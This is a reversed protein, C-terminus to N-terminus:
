LRLIALDMYKEYHLIINNYRKVQQYLVRSKGTGYYCSSLVRTPPQVLGGSFYSDFHFDEGLNPIFVFFTQTAVM